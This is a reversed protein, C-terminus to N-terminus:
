ADSRRPWPLSAFEVGEDRLAEAEDPTTRGYIGRAETEGYHIRRAEEAFRDGVNDCTQEVTSRLSELASALRRAAEARPGTAAAPANAPAASGPVADATASQDAATAAAAAAPPGADASQEGGPRTGAQRAGHHRALRPAMIAKTVSHTGCVPCRIVGAEAQEDFGAADRFWAEFTHGVDCQLAYLIM